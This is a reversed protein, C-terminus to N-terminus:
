VIKCSFFCRGTLIVHCCCDEMPIWCVLHPGTTVIWLSFLIKFWMGTANWMLLCWISIDYIPLIRLILYVWKRCLDEKLFYFCKTHKRSLNQAISYVFSAFIASRLTDNNIYIATEVEGVYHEEIYEKRLLLFFSEINGHLLLFETLFTVSHAVNKWAVIIIPKVMELSIWWSTRDSIWFCAREELCYTQSIWVYLVANLCSALLFKGEIM